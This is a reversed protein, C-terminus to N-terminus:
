SSSLSPSTEKKAVVGEHFNSKDPVSLVQRSATLAARNITLCLYQVASIADM